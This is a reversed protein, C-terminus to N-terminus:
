NYVKFNDLVSIVGWKPSLQESIRQLYNLFTAKETKSDTCMFTWSKIAILISKCPLEKIKKSCKQMTVHRHTQRAQVADSNVKVSTVANLIHQLKHKWKKRTCLDKM